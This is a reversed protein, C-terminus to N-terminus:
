SFKFPKFKVLRLVASQQVWLNCYVKRCCGTCPLSGKMNSLYYNNTWVISAKIKSFSTCFHLKSCNSHIQLDLECVIDVSFLIPYMHKPPRPPSPRLKGGSCAAQCVSMPKTSYTRKYICWKADVRWMPWWYIEARGKYIINLTSFYKGQTFRPLLLCFVTERYCDMVQSSLGRLM